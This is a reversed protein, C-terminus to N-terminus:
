NANLLAEVRAVDEPRDVGISPYSTVRTQISFGHSLWRLQELSEAKELDSPALSTLQQLVTAQYAYTGVHLWHQQQDEAPDRQFPIPYRSFYLAHQQQDLVVKATDASQIAERDDTARVLTAIQTDPAEFCGVLEDIQEPHILPEDGQINVVVDHPETVNRSAEACRDTGSCHTPDTMTVAGGFAEVHQAIRADDTAVVVHHLGNAQRVREYVRQIMSKGAIEALPKGPFRTSDYRAPIIGLVRM